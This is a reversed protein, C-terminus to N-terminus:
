SKFYWENNLKEFNYKLKEIMVTVSEAGYTKPEPLRRIAAMMNKAKRKESM